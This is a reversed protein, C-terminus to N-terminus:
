FEIALYVATDTQLSTTGAYTDEDVEQAQHFVLFQRAGLGLGNAWRHEIGLGTRGGFGAMRARDERAVENWAAQEAETFAEDRYRALPIVGYGGLSAWPLVGGESVPRLYVRWDFGPRLAGRMVSRRDTESGGATGTWSHSREWAVAVNFLFAQRGKTPGAWATLAPQLYGDKEAMGTGSGRGSVVWQADGRSFPRYEVGALGGAHASSALAFLGTLFLM